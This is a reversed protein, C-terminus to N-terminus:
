HLSADAPGVRVGTFEVTLGGRSPSAVLLGARWERAPDLPALRVLRWETEDARRARVTLADGSRSARVVVEHGQWEPVPAVSWDSLERTVVAGLQPAGDAFEVGAKVWNRDDSWVLVGAQDFQQDYDLRWSVEIATEPAFPHLLGHGTDHVFGYSTTRWFDSEAAATVRLMGGSEQVAVPPNVWEGSGLARSEM